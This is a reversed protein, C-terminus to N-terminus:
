EIPPCGEVWSSDTEGSRVFFGSCLEKKPKLDVKRTGTTPATSEGCALLLMISGGLFLPIIRRRM